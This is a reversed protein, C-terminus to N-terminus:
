WIVVIITIIITGRDGRHTPREEVITTSSGVCQPHPCYPSMLMIVLLHISLIKPSRSCALQESTHVHLTSSFRHVYVCLSSTGQDSWDPEIIGTYAHTYATCTFILDESDSALRNRLKLNYEQSHHRYLTAGSSTHVSKKAPWGNHTHAIAHRFILIGYLMVTHVACKCICTYTSYM